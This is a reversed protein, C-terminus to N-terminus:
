MNQNLVTRKIMIVGITILLIISLILSVNLITTGTKTSLIIDARSFDDEAEEKNAEKSDYDKVGQENYAEYIEATNNVISGMAKDTMQMSLVLTIEKSEGPNIVTNELSTNYLEKNQKSYYWEKNLESTFKTDEPLYDVIKKAYGPIQGENTVVLKYEIVMSSKNVNKAPIEQKVMKSNKFTKTQAKSNPMTVTIKSIYKDLKLDFKEAVFVGLDIDRINSSVVRIINTVGAYTQENNLTIKMSTADSNYSQSVGQAQYQTLSYKGADYLFVVFYQGEPVNTFEYTGNELTTVIKEEETKTDKVIQNNAKHILMVKVNPLLEETEERKGNKNADIWATGTIRYGLTEDPRNSDGPTNTGPTNPKGPNNPKENEGYIEKNYEVITTIANSSKAELGQAIITGVNNLTKDQKNEPLLDAKATVKVTLVAGKEFSALRLTATHNLASTETKTTNGYTYELKEFTLGEPLKNEFVVNTAVADGINKINFEYTISQTEKIYKQALTNQTIEFNPTGIHYNLQNSTIVEQEGNAVATARYTFDGTLEEIQLNLQLRQLYGAQMSPVTLVVKEEQVNLYSAQEKGESDYYNAKVVKIGKPVPVTVVVNNLNMNAKLSITTYLTEGRTLTTDEPTPVTLIINLKEGVKNLTYTNSFVGNELDTATVKVQHKITSLIDSTPEVYNEEDQVEKVEHAKIKLEYSAKLTEEPKINNLPMSVEKQSVEVYKQEAYNYKTYATGEPITMNLKVNQAEVRATNTIEATFKIIQNEAVRANDEVNATLKVNLNPAENTTIRLIASKKSEGITATELQNDYYVKYMHSTTNAHALKEPLEVQYQFNLKEGAAMQKTVIILYSKVKSLDEINTKWGNGSNILDKTALENESYYVQFKGEQIGEVTIKKTMPMTFTNGLSTEEDIVKAQKVPIRGLIMMNEISNTYNNTISGQITVTQKQNNANIIVNKEKSSIEEVEEGSTGYGKMANAVVVGAPAVINFSAKAIGMTQANASRAKANRTTEYVSTNENTYYMIVEETKTTAQKNLTCDLNLVISAGKSIVNQAQEIYKTQTGELIIQIVQKGNRQIIKTEKIKLEDEFMLRISNISVKEIQSPLEVEMVPNKYLANETNSTNLVINMEVNQNNSVTTLNQSKEAISIEAKCTPETLLITNQTPIQKEQMQSIVGIQMKSFTKMQDKSYTQEATLAKEIELKLNGETIPKTTKLMIENEKKNQMQFVYNQNIDTETEQNITGIEKGDKQLIKISGEQGLIKEFVAKAIKIQKVYSNGAVEYQKEQSDIYKEPMTQVQINQLLNVDNVQVHYAITYPTEQKAEIEQGAQKKQEKDYNAYIYGKSISNKGELTTQVLSGKAEKENCTLDQAKEVVTHNLTVVKTNVNMSTNIGNQIAQHYISEGVFVFNVIYQDTGQKAWALMKNQNQTNEVKIQLLGNEKEYSYNEKTFNVGTQDSNTAMTRTAISTIREPKQGNIQPVRISLNTSQIPMIHDKLESNVVMQLLIGYEEGIHYPVYKAVNAELNLEPAAEWSVKNNVIKEVTKEQENKDIYTAIFKVQSTKSLYGEPIQELKQISIPVTLVLEEGGNIQKLMIQNETIKQVKEHKVNASNIQYNADFINVVANKLYGQNKVKIKFYLNMEEGINAKKSYEQGEFYSSFEVNSNNTKSNQEQLSAAIVSNELTLLNMGILVTIALIAIIKQKIKM